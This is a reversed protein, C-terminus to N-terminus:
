QRGYLLKKGHEKVDKDLNKVSHFLNEVVQNWRGELLSRVPAQAVRSSAPPPAPISPPSILKYSLEHM